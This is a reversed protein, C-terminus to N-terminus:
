LYYHGLFEWSIIAREDVAPLLVPVLLGVKLFYVRFFHLECPSVWM